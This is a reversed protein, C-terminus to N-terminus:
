CKSNYNVIITCMKIFSEQTMLGKAMNVDKHVWQLNGKIYGLTSDKRDLSATAQYSQYNPRFNIDIGSL